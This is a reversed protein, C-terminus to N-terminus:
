MKDNEIEKYFLEGYGGENKEVQQLYTYGIKKYFEPAQDTWLYVRKYGLERAKEAIEKLMKTGYGKKREEKFIMVSSIWPYIEPYKKLNEKKLTCFGVLKDKDYYAYGIPLGTERTFSNTFNEKVEQLDLTSNFQKWHNYHMNIIKELDEKSIDKFKILQMM